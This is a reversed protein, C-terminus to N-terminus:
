AVQALEAAVLAVAARRGIAIRRDYRRGNESHPGIAARADAVRAVALRAMAATTGPGWSSRLAARRALQAFSRDIFSPHAM